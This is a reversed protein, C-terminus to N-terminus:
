GAVPRDRRQGGAVAHGVVGEAEDAAERKARFATALQTDLESLGPSGCILKEVPATARGCDFSPGAAQASGAAFLAASAAVSMLRSRRM